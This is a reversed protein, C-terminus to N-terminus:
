RLPANVRVPERSDEFEGNGLQGFENRGWCRVHDGGTETVVACTFSISRSIQSVEHDALVRNPPTVPHTDGGNVRYERTYNWCRGQQETTVACLPEAGTALRVFQDGIHVQGALPSVPDSAIWCYLDDTRTIGCFDAM